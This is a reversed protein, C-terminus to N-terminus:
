KRDKAGTQRQVAGGVRGGVGEGVRVSAQRLPRKGHMGGKGTQGRDWSTAWNTSLCWPPSPSSPYPKKQPPRPYHHTPAGILVGPDPGAVRRGKHRHWDLIHSTPTLLPELSPLTPTSPPILASSCCIFSYNFNGLVIFIIICVVSPQSQSLWELKHRCVFRDPGILLKFAQNSVECFILCSTEWDSCSTLANPSSLSLFVWPMETFKYQILIINKVM